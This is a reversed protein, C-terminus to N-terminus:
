DVEGEGEDEDEGESEEDTVEEGEIEIEEDSDTEEGEGEEEVDENMVQFQVIVDHLHNYVEHLKKCCDILIEVMEEDDDEPLNEMMKWVKKYKAMVRPKV